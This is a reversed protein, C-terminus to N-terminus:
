KAGLILRKNRVDITFAGFQNLVAMGLLMPSNGNSVAGFRVNHVMRGGVIVNKVRIERKRLVAGDAMLYDAYGAEVAEGDAVLRSAMEESISGSTAGTDVMMSILQHGLIVDTYITNGSNATTLVAVTPDAFAPSFLSTCLAGALFLTKM